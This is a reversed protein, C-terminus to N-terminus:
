ARDFCERAKGAEGLRAHCMALFFLDYGDTEGGGGALSKQLTAVAERYQGSRYQAVGLTNLWLQEQPILRLAEEILKLARAPDQKEAPGTLLPWAEKNLNEGAVRKAALGAMAGEDTTIDLPPLLPVPPGGQAAPTDPGGEWDLEMDRLHRR